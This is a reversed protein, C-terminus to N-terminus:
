LTCLSLKFMAKVKVKVQEPALSLYCLGVASLRLRFLVVEMFFLATGIFSMFAYMFFSPLVGSM